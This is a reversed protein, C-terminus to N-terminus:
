QAARLGPPGPLRPAVGALHPTVVEAALTILDWAAQTTRAPGLARRVDDLGSWGWDSFSSAGLRRALVEHPDLDHAPARAELERLTLLVANELDGTPTRLRRLWRRRTPGDLMLGLERVVDIPEDPTHVFSLMPNRMGISTRLHHPARRAADAPGKLASLRRAGRHGGEPREDLLYLALCRRGAFMLDFLRSKDLTACNWQYRWIEHMLLRNMTFPRAGLLRFGARTLFDLCQAGRRSVIADPKLTLVAIRPLVEALDGGLVECTDRWAERFLAEPGYADLKDRRPELGSREIQRMEMATLM